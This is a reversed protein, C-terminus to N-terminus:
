SERGNMMMSAKRRRQVSALREEDRGTGIGSDRFGSTGQSFEDANDDDDDDEEDDAEAPLPQRLVQDEERKIEEERKVVDNRGAFRLPTQGRRQQQRRGLTPFTRSTDSLDELSTPDFSADEDDEDDDSSRERKIAGEENSETKVGVMSSSPGLYTSVAFWALAMSLM